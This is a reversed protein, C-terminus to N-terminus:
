FLRTWNRLSLVVSQVDFWISWLCPTHLSQAYGLRPLPLKLTTENM